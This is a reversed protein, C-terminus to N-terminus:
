QLHGALPRGIDLNTRVAENLRSRGWSWIEDWEYFGRPYEATSDQRGRLTHSAELRDIPTAM